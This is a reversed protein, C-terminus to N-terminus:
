TLSILHNSLQEYGTETILYNHEIRIGGIGEVYLGPELTVVDGAILIDESEPVFIPSEPHGLGIGHGAHHNFTEGYGTENLPRATAAHVDKAAAGARLATEGSRMAAECLEFLMMQEDSPAGVSIVNTFDGRYGDIIVSFDLLMLDGNQLVHETPLGGVKPQSATTARFDGYLLIPRGAAETAAAQIERYVEFEGVGACVIERARAHGAEGARMSTKLLEIEDPEKQRRLRRLVSGLDIAARGPQVANVAREEVAHREHDPSLVEWAALPLWESEVAGTRGLIHSDMAELAKFLAHDRNIVSNEHDYWIEEVVRNVFVDGAASRNTLNDACLTVNGGRELFLLGREGGSWSYPNVLFNSLYYVHRPDAVLLWEVSDPVSDWLRTRRALCGAETLM